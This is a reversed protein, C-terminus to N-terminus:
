ISTIDYFLNKTDLCKHLKIKFLDDTINMVAVDDDLGFQKKIKAWVTPLKAGPCDTDRSRELAIMNIM